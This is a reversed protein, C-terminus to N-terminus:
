TPSDGPARRRNHSTAPGTIKAVQTMVVAPRSAKAWYEFGAAVEM